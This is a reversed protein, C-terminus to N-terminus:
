VNFYFRMQLLETYNIQIFLKLSLLVLNVIIIFVLIFM